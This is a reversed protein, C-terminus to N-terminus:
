MKLLTAFLDKDIKKMPCSTCAIELLETLSLLHFYLFTIKIVGIIFVRKRIQSIITMWNRVWEISSIPHDLFLKIIQILKNKIYNESYHSSGPKLYM